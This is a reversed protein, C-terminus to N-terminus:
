RKDKKSLRESNNREFKGLDRSFNLKNIKISERIPAMQKETEEILQKIILKDNYTM